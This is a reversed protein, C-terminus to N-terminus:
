TELRVKEWKCENRDYKWVGHHIDCTQTLIQLVTQLESHVKLMYSEQEDSFELDGYEDPEREIGLIDAIDGFVYSNGYPRKCDIAPAGFECDDWGIHANKLLKIHDSTITFLTM